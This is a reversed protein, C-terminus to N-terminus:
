TRSYRLTSRFLASHLMKWLLILQFIRSINMLMGLKSNVEFNLITFAYKNLMDCETILVYGVSICCLDHVYYLYVIANNHELENFGVVNTICLVEKNLLLVELIGSFSLL